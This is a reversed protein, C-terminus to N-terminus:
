QTKGYPHVMAHRERTPVRKLATDVYGLEFWAHVPTTQRAWNEKGPKKVRATHKGVKYPM